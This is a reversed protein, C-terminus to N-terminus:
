STRKRHEAKRQLQKCIAKHRRRVSGVATGPWGVGGVCWRHGGGVLAFEGFGELNRCYCNNCAFEAPLGHVLGEALLELCCVGAAKNMLPVQGRRRQWEHVLMSGVETERGGEKPVWLPLRAQQLASQVQRLVLKPMASLVLYM